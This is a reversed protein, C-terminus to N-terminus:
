FPVSISIGIMKSNNSVDYGVFPGIFTNDVLPIHRGVNYAFPSFKIWYDDGNTSLGFDVFRWMLDNKTRGYGMFSISIGGGATQSSNSSFGYDLNLNLKPDWWYFKNKKIKLQQFESSVIKVPVKYGRSVKRKNNEFWTEIYTNINGTEQESQVIKSHYELSYIGYKWKKGAPKNPYFIAWAYPIQKIVKGNKDKVPYMIDIFYQENADGTGPKYVHSSGTRLKRINDDLKVITEGMNTITENNKKIDSLVNQWQTDLKNINNKLSNVIETNVRVLSENYQKYKRAEALATEVQHQQIAFRNNIWRYAEFGAFCIFLILATFVVAKIIGLYGKISM